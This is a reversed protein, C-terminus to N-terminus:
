AVMRARNFEQRRAHVAFGQRGCDAVVWIQTVTKWEKDKEMKVEGVTYAVRSGDPSLRPSGVAALKMLDMAGLLRKGNKARAEPLKPTPKQEPSPTPQEQATLRASVVFCFLLLFSAIFLKRNM